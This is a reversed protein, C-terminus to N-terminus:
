SAPAPLRREPSDLVIARHLCPICYNHTRANDTQRETPTESKFTKADKHDVFALRSALGGVGRSAHDRIAIRM